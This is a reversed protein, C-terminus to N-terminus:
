LHLNKTITYRFDALLNLFNDQLLTVIKNEADQVSECARKEQASYFRDHLVFFSHLEKILTALLM